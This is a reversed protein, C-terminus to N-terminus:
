LGPRGTKCLWHTPERNGELQIQTFSNEYYWWGVDAPNRDDMQMAEELTRYWASWTVWVTAMNRGVIVEDGDKPATEIPKWRMEPTQYLGEPQFSFEMIEAQKIKDGDYISPMFGPNGLIACLDDRSVGEQFTVVIRGNANSTVFGLPPKTHDHQMLIPVNPHDGIRRFGQM